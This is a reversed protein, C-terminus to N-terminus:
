LYSKNHNKLNIKRLVLNWSYCQHLLHTWNYNKPSFFFCYFLTSAIAIFGKIYVMSDSARTCEFQMVSRLCKGSGIFSPYNAEFFIFANFFM